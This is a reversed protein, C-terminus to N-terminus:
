KVPLYVKFTAGEGAISEAEIRGNHNEVVKRVISLGVGTGKYNTNGHLRTFVNFIREAHLQDFGIGNDRFRILHYLTGNSSGPLPLPIENTLVETCSIAVEPSIGPRAYKLSNSLLNQFLQQLQRKHGKVVPLDSIMIKANKELIELELDELVLSALENLDVDEELNAGRGVHSYLLLDDILTSSRKAATRMRDFYHKQESSLNKSFSLQLRDAFLHIKRIPEQMDHSAAYAFEELNQNSRKLEENANALERTREQVRKQLEAESEEIKKRALVQATVDLAVAIIGSITGNGERYPAYVVTVYVQELKGDRPFQVAQEDMYVTEGTNYVKTLLREFGYGKAEPLAEFLPKGLIEKGPKGWVEFMRENALEVIFAPGRFINMAVPAKLIINRLNQESEQLQM